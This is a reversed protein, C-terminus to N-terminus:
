KITGIMTQVIREDFKTDLLGEFEGGIDEMVAEKAIIRFLVKPEEGATLIAIRLYFQRHHLGVYPACTFTLETPLTEQSKAEVSEMASMKDLHDKTLTNTTRAREITLNRILRAASSPLIVGGDPLNVDLSGSWDEIFEAAAKQGMPSGDVRCLEKFAATPTMTLIASHQKHGPADVTGLDVITHASMSKPDVFCLTGEESRDGVYSAYSDVSTTKYALRYHSALEMYKELDLLQYGEPIVAVPSEATNTVGSLVAPINATEQIQKIADKDMM